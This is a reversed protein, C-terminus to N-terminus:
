EKDSQPESVIPENQAQRSRRQKQKQPKPKPTAARQPAARQAPEREAQIQRESIAAKIESCELITDPLGGRSSGRTGRAMLTLSDGIEKGERRLVVEGRKGEVARLYKLTQRHAVHDLNFTLPRPPRAVNILTVPM